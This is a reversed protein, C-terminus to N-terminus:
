YSPHNTCFRHALIPTSEGEGKRRALRTRDGRGRLRGQAPGAKPGLSLTASRRIGETKSSRFVEDM